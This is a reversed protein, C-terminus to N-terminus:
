RAHPDGFQALAWPVRCSDPTRRELFLGGLRRWAANAVALAPRGYDDLEVGGFARLDGFFDFEADFVQEWADAEAVPDIRRKDARRKVPM